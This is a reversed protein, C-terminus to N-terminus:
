SQSKKNEIDAIYAKIEALEEPSAKGTGLAQMVLKMASGNFVSDMLKNMLHSQTEQQPVQAAYIHTRSEENRNLLGKEKMIQMLKLTTTYGTPKVENLRDNVVRVTTPGTEWLIKLIDLEAETPTLKAKKSM